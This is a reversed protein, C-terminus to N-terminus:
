KLFTKNTKMTLTRYQNNYDRIKNINEALENPKTGISKALASYNQSSLYELLNNINVQGNTLSLLNISVGRKSENLELSNIAKNLVIDNLIYNDSIKESMEKNEFYLTARALNSDDKFNYFLLVLSLFLSNLFIFIIFFNFKKSFCYNLFSSLTIQNDTM